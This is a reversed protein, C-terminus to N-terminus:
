GEKKKRKKKKANSPKGTYESITRKRREKRDQVRVLQKKLKKERKADQEKLRRLKKMRDSNGYMAKINWNNEELVQRLKIEELEELTIERNNVKVYTHTKEWEDLKRLYKRRDSGKLVDGKFEPINDKSKYGVEKDYEEFQDMDYGDSSFSTSYLSLNEMNKIEMHRDKAFYVLGPFAKRFKKEDQMSMETIIDSGDYEDTDPDYCLERMDKALRENDVRTNLAVEATEDTYLCRIVEEPSKDEFIDEVTSAAPGDLFTQPDADSLICEKMYDWNIRKRDSGTYKPYFWGNVRIKGNMVLKIFKEEEYVTNKHAVEALCMLSTRACQIFDVLKRYKRKYRHLRNFLDYFENNAKKEEDSMHYGDDYDRVVSGKYAEKIWEERRESIYFANRAEAIRQDLTQKEEETLPKEDVQPDAMQNQFGIVAM